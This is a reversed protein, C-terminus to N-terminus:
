RAGGDPGGGDPQSPEQRNGIGGLGLTDSPVGGSGSGRLGLGSLRPGPVVSAGFSKSGALYNSRYRSAGFIAALSAGADISGDVGADIGADRASSKAGQSFAIMAAGVFVAFSVVTLM